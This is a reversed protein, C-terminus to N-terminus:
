RILVTKGGIINLGKRPAALQSGTLAYAKDNVMSWQGNDMSWQENDMSSIDEVSTEIAFETTSPRNNYLERIEEGTLAKNYLRFNDILTNSLYADADFPSRGLWGKLTKGAIKTPPVSLTAMSRLTGDVYILAPQGERQVLTVTHWLGPTLSTGSSVQEATGEYKQEYYWNANGPRNILGVYHNTSNSFAFAWCHRDLTNPTGVCLDITISYNKKMLYLARHAMRTGLNLYGNDTGTYLVHNGDALTRLAADGGLTATFTGSDDALQDFSYSYLLDGSTDVPEIWPEDSLLSDIAYSPWKEAMRRAESLTICTVSGHRPSFDRAFTKPEKTWNYLDTSTHYEFRGLGPLDYMLIYTDSGLLKYTSSGEENIGPDQYYADLYVYDEVYPGTVKDAVAQQIGNQVERNSADRTNGKYFLHWKGDPGLIIDNDVSGNKAPFLVKPETEFGTFDRNAYAYYTIYTKRDSRQLTFYVMYKGADPDYITQPAWVWFADSFNHYYDTALKVRSHTWNVLDTSRMMVIGPNPTNWGDRWANMDTAVLLFEGNEGRLIHPDRIRKSNAITDSGIVPANGNLARWSIGDRSIAFRLYEEKEQNDSGFYAFLYRSLPEPEEQAVAVFFTTMCLLTLYIKQNM